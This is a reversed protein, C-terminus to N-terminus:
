VLKCMHVTEGSGRCYITQICYLMPETVNCSMFRVYSESFFLTFNFLLLFGTNTCLISPRLHLYNDQKSADILPGDIVDYMSPSYVCYYKGFCTIPEPFGM